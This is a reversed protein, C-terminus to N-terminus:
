LEVSSQISNLENIVYKLKENNNSLVLGLESAILKDIKSNEAGSPVIRDSLVPKLVKELSKITQALTELLREQNKLEESIERRPKEECCELDGEM